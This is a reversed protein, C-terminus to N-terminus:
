HDITETKMSGGISREGGDGGGGVGDDNDGDGDDAQRLETACVVNSHAAM